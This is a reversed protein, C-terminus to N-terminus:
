FDTWTATTTLLPPNEDRNRPRNGGWSKYKIAIGLFFFLDSRCPCRNIGLDSPPKAHTGDDALHRIPVHIGLGTIGGFPIKKVNSFVM